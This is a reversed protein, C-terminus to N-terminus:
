SPDVNITIHGDYRNETEFRRILDWLVAKNATLARDKKMSVRIHKLFQDAVKDVVPSYPGTVPDSLISQGELSFRRRLKDALRTSM